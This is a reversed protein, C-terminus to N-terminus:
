SPGVFDFAGSTGSLEFLRRAAESGGILRFRHGAAQATRHESLLLNLGSSDMFTIGRLDLVIDDFGVDRLDILEREVQGVTVMDLDGAPAVIVQSRNPLVTVSFAADSATLQQPSAVLM